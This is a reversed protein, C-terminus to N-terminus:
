FKLKSIKDNKARPTFEGRNKDLALQIKDKSISFELSHITENTNHYLDTDNRAELIIAPNLIYM